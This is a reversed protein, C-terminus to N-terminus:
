LEVRNTLWGDLFVRLRPKSRALTIFYQAILARYAVAVAPRYCAKVAAITKSGIVGDEKLPLKTTVSLSNVAKQLARSAQFPGALVCFDVANERVEAPLKSAHVAEWYEASYIQEALEYPLDRMKGEYGHRRATRETIGYRTAGGNDNPHDSFGGEREIIRKIITAKNM